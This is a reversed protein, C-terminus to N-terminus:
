FGLLWFRGRGRLRGDASHGIRWEKLDMDIISAPNQRVGVMGKGAFPLLARAGIRDDAMQLANSGRRMHLFAKDAVFQSAVPDVNGLLFVNKLINGFIWDDKHHLLIHRLSPDNVGIGLRLLHVSLRGNKKGVGFRALNNVQVHSQPM